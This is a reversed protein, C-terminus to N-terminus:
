DKPTLTININFGNKIFAIMMDENSISQNAIVQKCKNLHYILGTKTKYQKGCSNCKNKIMSLETVNVDYKVCMQHRNTNIHENWNSLKKCSFNCYLCEYPNDIDINDESM